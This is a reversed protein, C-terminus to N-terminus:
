LYMYEEYFILISMEHSHRDHLNHNIKELFYFLFLIHDAAYKAQRELAFMCVSAYFMATSLLSIGTLITRIEGHYCPRPM